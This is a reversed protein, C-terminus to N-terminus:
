NSWYLRITAQAGADWGHHLLAYEAPVRGPALLGVGANLDCLLHRRLYSQTGWLAFLSPTLLGRGSPYGKAAAVQALTAGAELALYRGLETAGPRRGPSGARHGYYYRGGVGLAATPFSTNPGASRRRRRVNVSTLQMDADLQTYLSIRGLRREVALSWPVLMQWSASSSSASLHTLRLGGKVLWATAPGQTSDAGPVAQARGSGVAGLLSLLCGTIVYRLRM